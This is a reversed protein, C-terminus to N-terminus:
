VELVDEGKLASVFDSLKVPRERTPIVNLVNVIENVWGEQALLINTYINAIAESNSLGLTSAEKQLEEDNNFLELAHEFLQDVGGSINLSGGIHEDDEHEILENPVGAYVIVKSSEAADEAVERTLASGVGASIEGIREDTELAQCIGISKDQDSTLVLVKIKEM